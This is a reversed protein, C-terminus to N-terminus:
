EQIYKNLLSTFKNSINQIQLKLLLNNYLPQFTQDVLYTIFKSYIFNEGDFFNQYTIYSFNAKLKIGSDTKLSSLNSLEKEPFKLTLFNEYTEKCIEDTPYISLYEEYYDVLLIKLEEKIGQLKEDINYKTQISLTVSHFIDKSNDPNMFFNLCDLYDANELSYKIINSSIGTYHSAKAIIPIDASDVPSFFYDLNCDLAESIKIITELKPINKGQEWHNVNVRDINVKEGFSQQSKCYDFQLYYDRQENSLRIENNKASKYQEWRYKRLSKFKKSFLKIDYDTYNYHLM